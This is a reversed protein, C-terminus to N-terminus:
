AVSGKGEIIKLVSTTGTTAVGSCPLGHSDLLGSAPVILKQGTPNNLALGTHASPLVDAHTTIESVIFSAIARWRVRLRALHAGTANPNLGALYDTIADGLRNGDMAM